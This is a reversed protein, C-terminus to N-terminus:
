SEGMAERFLSEWQATVAEITFRDRVEVARGALRERLAEDGLLLGIADALAAVDETPILLGDIGDHIIDRPGHECDCAVVARGMAMAEILVMPLGEKRSSLVFVTATLFEHEPANTNGPFDVRDTLGLDARIRELEDRDDGEGWIVLRATPWDDVLRAFAEMLLDFGKEQGLRGLAMIIPVDSSGHGPAESMAKARALFPSPLANPVVRGHRRLAPSLHALASPTLMVVFAARRYTVERIVSWARNLEGRPGRHESVIVPLGLGTTAMLTVANAMFSLVIEPKTESIARRLVRIRRVNNVVAHFPTPSVRHLGLQVEAVRPDLPFAAPTGPPSFHIITITWDKAAWHNALETMVREAGGMTLSSIVMTLRLPRTLAVYPGAVAEGPPLEV